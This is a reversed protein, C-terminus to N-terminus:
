LIFSQSRKDSRSEEDMPMHTYFRSFYMAINNNYFLLFCFTIRCLLLLAKDISTGCNDMIHHNSVLSIILSSFQLEREFSFDSNRGNIWQSIFVIQIHSFCFLKDKYYYECRQVYFYIKHCHSALKELLIPLARFFINCATMFISVALLLRRGCYQTGSTM